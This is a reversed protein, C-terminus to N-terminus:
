WQASFAGEMNYMGLVNDVVHVVKFVHTYKVCMVVHCM